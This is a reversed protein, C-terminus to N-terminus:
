AREALFSALRRGTLELTQNGARLYLREDDLWAPETARQIEIECVRVGRVRVWWLRVFQSVLAPDIRKGLLDGMIWREFRDLDDGFLQLDRKLGKVEGSDHIGVILRGGEANMIGAVARVIETEMKADRQGTHTNIRFTEKFELSHSEGRKILAILGEETGSEPVVNLGTDVPREAILKHVAELAASRRWPGDKERILLGLNSLDEAADRTVPEGLIWQDLEKNSLSPDLLDAAEPYHLRLAEILQRWDHGADERWLPLVSATHAGTITVVAFDSTNESDKISKRVASALNRVFYPMGGTASQVETIAEPTWTLLMPRGLKLLLEGTEEQTFATIYISSVQGFMPNDVAAEGLGLVTSRFMRNAVGSFALSLNPCAQAATRLAALLTRVQDPDTKAIRAASEIEDVAVVFRLKPNRNAVRKLRDSLDSLSMDEVGHGWKDGIKVVLGAERADRLDDFLNSAISKALSGVSKEELVQLDGMTMITGRALMQRKLERLVSTKGSRRLGLIVINEDSQLAASANRLMDQRGFFDEGTVPNQTRYLDRDGLSSRLQRLLAIRAVEPDDSTIPVSIVLTPSNSANQWEEIKSQVQSDESVLVVVKSSPTFRESGGPVSQASKSFEALGKTMVNFSRRQFDRWPVFFFAVEGNILFQREMDAGLRGLAFGVNRLDGHRLRNTLFFLPKPNGQTRLAADIIKAKPFIEFFADRRGSLGSRDETGQYSAMRFMSEDPEEYKRHPDRTEPIM